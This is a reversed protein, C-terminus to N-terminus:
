GNTDLGKLFDDLLIPIFNAIQDKALEFPRKPEYGDKGIKKAILYANHTTGEIGKAIMWNYIAQIPPMRGAPRGEEIYEAHVETSGIKILYSRSNAFSVESTISNLLRKSAVADVEVIAAKVEREAVTRLQKSLKRKESLINKQIKKVFDKDGGIKVNYNAM